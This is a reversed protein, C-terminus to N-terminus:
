ATVMGTLGRLNGFFVREDSTLAADEIVMEGWEAAAAIAQYHLRTGIIEIALAVRPHLREPV